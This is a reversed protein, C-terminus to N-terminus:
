YNRESEAPPVTYPAANVNAHNRVIQSLSEVLADIEKSTFITLFRHDVEMFLNIIEKRANQRDSDPIGAKGFAHAHTHVRHLRSNPRLDASESNDEASPDEGILLGAYILRLLRRKDQENANVM